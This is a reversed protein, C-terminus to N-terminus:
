ETEGKGNKLESTLSTSKPINPLTTMQLWCSIKSHGDEMATSEKEKAEEEAKAIARLLVEKYSYEKSASDRKEEMGYLDGHAMATTAVDFASHLTLVSAVDSNVDQNDWGDQIISM